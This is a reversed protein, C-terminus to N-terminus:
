YDTWTDKPELAEIEPKLLSNKPIVACIDFKDRDYNKLFTLICKGAGGINTDSSIQVVKIKM